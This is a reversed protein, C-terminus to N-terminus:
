ERAELTEAWAEIEAAPAMGTVAGVAGVARAGCANAFRLARPLPWGSDRAHLFGAIFCDGAGTTDRVPVRFAPVSLVERGDAYLCGREGLKIVAAGCGADRLAAAMAAPESCGTLAAAEEESPMAFDVYPLCPGLVRLWEGRRDWCVDLSTTLGRRKAEALVEVAGGRDMEPLVFFGSFHLHRTGSLREWPIDAPRFDANAGFHHIFSREGTRDVPVLTVGTTAVPDRAVLSVDVGWGALRDTLFRGYLDDGVRGLAAVSAGLRALAGATNPGNGGSHTELTDLILLRGREPLADLPKGILDVVFNGLVALRASSPAATM